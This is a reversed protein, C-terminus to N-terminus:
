ENKWTRGKKGGLYKGERKAREIGIQRRWNLQDLEYESLLCKLKFTFKHDPSGNYEGDYLSILKFGQQEQLELLEIADKLNRTIRDWKTVLIGQIEEKNLDKLLDLWEPRNIHRGTRAEDKYTRYQYGQKKCHTRLLTTQQEINQEDTSVRAYIGLILPKNPESLGANRNSNPTEKNVM